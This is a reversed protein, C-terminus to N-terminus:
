EPLGARRLGEEYRDLDELRRFPIRRRVDGVRSQPSIELMRLIAKRAEKVRGLFATSAAFIRLAPLFNPHEMLVRESRSAAEEFRGACLCSLAAATGIQGAHPGLPSLRMAYEQQEVAKEHEGLYTRVWGSAHWALAWNPCVSLARDVLMAGTELDGGVYALAFGSGALAVADDGALEAGRRALRVCEITERQPDQMWDNQKRTGYNVAAWGYAAAFERDLEIAKKFLRLADEISRRSIPVEYVCALGRLYCDYADLNETPKRLAREIEAQELKPAIAGVVRTTIRDQLDFVDEFAGDFREAWLHAGTTTDILQGTIRV